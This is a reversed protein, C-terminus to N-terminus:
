TAFLDQYPKNKNIFFCSRGLTQFDYNSEVVDLPDCPPTQCKGQWRHKQQWFPTKKKEPPWFWWTMTWPKSNGPSWLHIHHASAFSGDKGSGTSWLTVRSCSKHHLIPLKKRGFPLSFCHISSLVHNLHFEFKKPAGGVSELPLRSPKPQSKWWCSADNELHIWTAVSGHGLQFHFFTTLNM